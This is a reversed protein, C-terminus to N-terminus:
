KSIELSTRLGGIIRALEHAQTQHQKLKDEKIYGIDFAVHPQSRIEACSAKAIVVLCHFDPQSWHEFGEVLNAMILVAARQIQDRLGFDKVFASEGTLTYIAAVLERAKQWAILDEFRQAKM